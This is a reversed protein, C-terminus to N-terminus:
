SLKNFALKNGVEGIPRDLVSTSKRMIRKVFYLREDDLIDDAAM